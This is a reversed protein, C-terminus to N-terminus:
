TSPPNTTPSDVFSEIGDAHCILSDRIKQGMPDLVFDIGHRRAAKAAPVFDVDGSILIIQDVIGGYALSAIDLGIRMDVGSQKFSIHFDDEDLDEVRKKGALLAKTVSPHLNYNANETVVEGMRLAVKRQEALKAHFASSWKYSKDSPKFNINKKLLPHYVTAKSVPPCDYFFIRYLERKEPEIKQRRKATIHKLAYDYLELARTEPGKEGWLRESVRRYFGGDVLIATKTM